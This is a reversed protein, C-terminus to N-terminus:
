PAVSRLEDTSELRTHLQSPKPTTRTRAVSTKLGAVIRWSPGGDVGGVRCRCPCERRRLLSSILQNLRCILEINDRERPNESLFAIVDDEASFKGLISLVGCIEGRLRM